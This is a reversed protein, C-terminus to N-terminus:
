LYLLSGIINRYGTPDADVGDLDKTIKKSMSILTDALKSESLGFKSELDKAFKSQNM